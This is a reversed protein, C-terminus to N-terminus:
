TVWSPHVSFSIFFFDTLNCINIQFFQPRIYYVEYCTVTQKNVANVNLLL